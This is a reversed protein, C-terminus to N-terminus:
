ELGRLSTYCLVQLTLSYTVRHRKCRTQVVERTLPDLVGNFEMKTEIGTVRLMAVMRQLLLALLLPNLPLPGVMQMLM